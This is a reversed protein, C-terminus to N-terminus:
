SQPLQCATHCDALQTATPLSHCNAIQVGNALQTTTPLSHSLACARYRQCALQIGGALQIDGALQTTAPSNHPLQRTTLYSALQSTAPSSHPLQRATALQIATKTNPRHKPAAPHTPGLTLIQWRVNAGGLRKVIEAIKPPVSRNSYGTILM